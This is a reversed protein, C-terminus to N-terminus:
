SKESMDEITRILKVMVLKYVLKKLQEREKNEDRYFSGLEKHEELSREIVENYIMADLILQLINRQEPLFPMMAQILQAEKCLNGQCESRYGDVKHKIVGIYKEDIYNWILRSMENLDQEINMIIEQKEVKRM